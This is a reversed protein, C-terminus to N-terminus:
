SPPIPNFPTTGSPTVISPHVGVPTPMVGSNTLIAIQVATPAFLFTYTMTMDAGDTCYAVGSGGFLMRMIQNIAPISGNCINSFAKALVLVRFGDDTLIYNQTLKQGSYWPSQNFPDYDTDGGEDFGLYKPGAGIALVRNVGVITGWCDLGYGQATLVNWMLDFFSGLNNTQDNAQFFDELIDTLITSNAYQSIVTTWWDFPPVDGIPSFGVAFDTGIANAGEGPNGTPPPYPPGTM